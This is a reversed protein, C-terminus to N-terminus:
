RFIRRARGLARRVSAVVGSGHDGPTQAAAGQFKMWRAEGCQSCAPFLNEPTFPSRVSVGHQIFCTFCTYEALQPVRDRENFVFPRGHLQALKRQLDLTATASLRRVLPAKKLWAKPVWSIQSLDALQESPLAPASAPLYWLYGVENRRLSELKAGSFSPETVPAVQVVSRNDLDCTQTVILGLRKQANVLVFEQGESWADSLDDEKRPAFYKPVQGRLARAVTVPASPRLLYYSGGPPVLVPLDAVVDGQYPSSTDPALDYYQAPDVAM